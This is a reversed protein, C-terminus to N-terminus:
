GEEPDPEIELILADAAIQSGPEAVVRLVTGAVEALIEHQMKMAELIALKDGRGVREGEKVLVELLQGHMPAVVVGDGGAVEDAGALAASEIVAFSRTDLAVFLTGDGHEWFIAQVASGDLTLLAHPQAVSEIAAAIEEGAMLGDVVVQYIREGRPRVCVRRAEERSPHGQRSDHFCLVTELDRASSWDLLEPSVAM